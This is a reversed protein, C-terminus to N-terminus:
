AGTLLARAEILLSRSTPVGSTGIRRAVPKRRFSPSPCPLNERIREIDRITFLKTRGALRYFPEGSADCPHDKLWERLWRQGKRLERAAESVLKYKPEDDVIKKEVTSM